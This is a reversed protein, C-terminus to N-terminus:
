SVPVIRYVCPYGSVPCIYGEYYLFYGPVISVTDWNPIRLIMALYACNGPTISTIDHRRVRLKRNRYEYYGPTISM